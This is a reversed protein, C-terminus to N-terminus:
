RQRNILVALFMLFDMTKRILLAGFFLIKKPFSQVVRRARGSMASYFYYKESVVRAYNHISYCFPSFIIFELFLQLKGSKCFLGTKPVGQILTFRPSDSKAVTPYGSRSLTHSM